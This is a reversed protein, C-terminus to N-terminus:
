TNGAALHNGCMACYSWWPEIRDGCGSCRLVEPKREVALSPWDRTAAGGSTITPVQYYKAPWAAM